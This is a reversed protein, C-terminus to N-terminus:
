RPPMIYVTFQLDLTGCVQNCKGHIGYPDALLITIELDVIAAHTQPYCCSIYNEAFDTDTYLLIIFHAM